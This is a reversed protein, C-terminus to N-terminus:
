WRLTLTKGQAQFSQKQSGLTAVYNGTVCYCDANAPCSGPPSQFCVPPPNCTECPDIAGRTTQPLPRSLNPDYGAPPAIGASWKTAPFPDSGLVNSIESPSDS